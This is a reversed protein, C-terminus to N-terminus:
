PRWAITARRARRDQADPGDDNFYLVGGHLRMAVDMSAPGDLTLLPFVRPPTSGLVGAFDVSDLVIEDKSARAVVARLAGAASAELAISQAGGDGALRIKQPPVVAKGQKDFAAVMAGFAEGQAEIGMPSEEVWTVVVGDRTAALRPSRSHAASALVKIEAGARKVDNPRLLALYVDSYADKPSERPDSWAIWYGDDSRVLAVDSKDGPASTIREERAVRSLDYSVKTAYVEGPGHRGDVWAVIWGGAAPAIAVDTADGKAQTLQVDNTRKGRKDVRTVHVEPDGNERAVWVVAGGDDAKEAPAIAVGGVTLARTSIVQPAGAAGAKDYTRVALTAGKAQPKGPDDVAATLTAVATADGFAAVAVDAITDGAALTDLATIKPADAPIAPAVKAAAAPAPKADLDVASVRSVDDGRAALVACRDGDCRLGWALTAVGDGDEVIETSTADMDRSLRTVAPAIPGTCSGQGAVAPECVRRDALFAFGSPTAALEFAGKGALEVVYPKGERVGGETTRAFYVRRSGLTRKKREEWAVVVGAPGAALGFLTAGGPMEAVKRVPSAKGQEDISAVAVHTEADARDTWAFLFGRATRAVEIDGAIAGRAVVAPEGVARADGDVKLLSLTQPKQPADKDRTVIAVAAGQPTAVVQWVTAGRALRTPVGRMQGQLDVAAALVHADDGRTEEAWVCVAGKDTPVIEFWVIDNQTRAVELPKGRPAGDDGLVLLSLAEGREVLYSYGVIFAGTAGTERLAFANTDAPVRAAITSPPVAAGDAVRAAVLARSGAEPPLLQALLRTGARSAWFPGMTGKPVSTLVRANKPPPRLPGGDAPGEPMRAHDVGAAGRGGKSGCSALAFAFATAAVTLVVTATRPGRLM